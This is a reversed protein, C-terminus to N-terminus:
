EANFKDIQQPADIRRCNEVGDFNDLSLTAIITKRAACYRSRAAHLVM